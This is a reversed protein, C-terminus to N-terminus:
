YVAKKIYKPSFKDINKILKFKSKNILFNSFVNLNKYNEISNQSNLQSTKNKNMLEIKNDHLVYNLNGNADLISYQKNNKQFELSNMQYIKTEYISNFAKSVLLGVRVGTFSGPGVLVYINKIENADVKYKSLLKDIYEVIIDTLNNNTKVSLTNIFCNNKILGLYCYKQSCDIFLSYNM